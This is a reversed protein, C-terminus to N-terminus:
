GGGGDIGYLGKVSYDKYPIIFPHRGLDDNGDLKLRPPIAEDDFFLLAHGDHDSHEFFLPSAEM